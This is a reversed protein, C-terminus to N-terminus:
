IQYSSHSYMLGFELYSLSDQEEKMQQEQTAIHTQLVRGGFTLKSILQRSHFLFTLFTLYTRM